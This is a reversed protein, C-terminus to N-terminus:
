RTRCSFNAAESVSAGAAGTFMPWAPWRCMPRSRDADPNNDVSSITEPAQGKEVCTDLM